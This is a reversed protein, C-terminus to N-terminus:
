RQQVSGVFGFEGVRIERQPIRRCQWGDIQRFRIRFVRVFRQDNVTSRVVGLDRSGTDVVVAFSHLQGVTTQVQVEFNLEDAVVFRIVGVPCVEHGLECWLVVDTDFLQDEGGCHHRSGWTLM